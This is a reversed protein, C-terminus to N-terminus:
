PIGMFFASQSFYLSNFVVYFRKSFDNCFHLYTVRHISISGSHTEGFQTLFYEKTYFAIYLGFVFYPALLLVKVFANFFLLGYDTYASSSKWNKLPFLYSWFSSKTKNKIYSYYALVVASALYLFYIRKTSNLLYSFPIKLAKEATLIVEHLSM